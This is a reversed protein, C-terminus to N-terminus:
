GAIGCTLILLFALSVSAERSNEAPVISPDHLSREDDNEDETPDHALLNARETQEDEPANILTSMNMRHLHDPNRDQIPINQDHTASHIPLIAVILRRIMGDPM